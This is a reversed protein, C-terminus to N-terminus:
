LFEEFHAMLEDRGMAGVVKKVMEGGKFLLFAPIGMVRYKQALDVNEGACNVKGVLLRAEERAIEEIVPAMMGCPGCWEAWFDVLVPKDEQLVKEEFNETNLEMIIGM